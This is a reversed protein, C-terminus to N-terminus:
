ILILVVPERGTINKLGILDSNFKMDFLTPSVHILIQM